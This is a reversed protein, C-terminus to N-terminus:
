IFTDPQSSCLSPRPHFIVRVGCSLLDLRFSAGSLLFITYGEHPSIVVVRARLLQVFLRSSWDLRRPYRYLIRVVTSHCRHPWVNKLTHRSGPPNRSLPFLIICRHCLKQQMAFVFSEFFLFNNISRDFQGFWLSHIYISAGGFAGVRISINALPYHPTLFAAPTVKSAIMM